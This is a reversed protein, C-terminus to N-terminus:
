NHNSRIKNEIRSINKEIKNEGDLKLDTRNRKTLKRDIIAEGGGVKDEDGAMKNFHLYVFFIQFSSFFDIMM